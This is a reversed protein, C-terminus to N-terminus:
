WQVVQSTRLFLNLTVNCLAHICPLHSISITEAILKMSTKHSLRMKSNTEIFWTLVFLKATITELPFCLATEM